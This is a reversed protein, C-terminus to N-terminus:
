GRKEKRLKGNDDEGSWKEVELRRKGNENM